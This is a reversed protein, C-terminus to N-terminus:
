TRAKALAINDRHIGFCKGRAAARATRFPGIVATFRNRHSERTPDREECFVVRTTGGGALGLYWKLKM